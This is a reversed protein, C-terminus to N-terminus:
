QSLVCFPCTLSMPLMPVLCLIPLGSDCAANLYSVYHVFWLCLCCQSFVSFPCVLSVGLISVLHLISLGFFCATNPCSV